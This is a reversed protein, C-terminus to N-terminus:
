FAPAVLLQEAGQIPSLNIRRKAMKQPSHHYLHPRTAQFGSPFTTWGSGWHGAKRQSFVCVVDQRKWFGWSKVAFPMFWMWGSGFYKLKEKGVKKESPFVCVM